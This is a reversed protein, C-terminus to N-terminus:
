GDLDGFLEQYCSVVILTIFYCTESESNLPEVAFVKLSPSQIRSAIPSVIRELVRQGAASDLTQKSKNFDTLNRPKMNPQRKVLSQRSEYITGNTPDKWHKANHITPVTPLSEVPGNCESKLSDLWLIRCMNHNQLM